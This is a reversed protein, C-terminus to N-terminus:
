RMIGVIYLLLRVFFLAFYMVADRVTIRHYERFEAALGTFGTVDVTGPAIHLVPAGM